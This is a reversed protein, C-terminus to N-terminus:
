CYSNSLRLCRTSWVSVCPSFFLIYQLYKHYDLLNHFCTCSYYRILSPSVPDHPSFVCGFDLGSMLQHQYNVLNTLVFVPWYM